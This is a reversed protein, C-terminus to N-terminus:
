HAGGTVSNATGTASLNKQVSRHFRSSHSELAWPPIKNQTKPKPRVPHFRIKPAHEAILTVNPKNVKFSPYNHFGGASAGNASLALVAFASSLVCLASIRTM